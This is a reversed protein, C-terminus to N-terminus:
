KFNLNAFTGHFVRAKSDYARAADEESEFRQSYVVKGKHTLQASWKKRQKDWSVGLFKSSSGKHSTVNKGNELKTCVRLNCKQNNFPNGDIHDVVLNPDETRMVIRHLYARSSLGLHNNKRSRFVYSKGKIAISHWRWQNLWYFDDDDVLAVEGKTLQLERM